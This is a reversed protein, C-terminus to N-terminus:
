GSIASETAAQPPPPAAVADGGGAFDFAVVVGALVAVTWTALLLRPEIRTSECPRVSYRNLASEAVLLAHEPAHAVAHGGSTAFPLGVAPLPRLAVLIPVM